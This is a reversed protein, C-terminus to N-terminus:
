LEDVFLPSFRRYISYGVAFVVCCVVVLISFPRADPLRGEVLIARYAELLQAMPNLELVFRYSQPVAKAEYFVPTMYWGLLTTIKVFQHVDRVYVNGACLAFGLGLTLMFQVFLVLPLALATIPIGDGLLLFVCLVPFAALYDLGDALVSVIPVATRPLGPRFLLDRRDVASTCASTVGASFWQWAILGTFVFIAYNEIGLPVVRTFVYTLIVLRALPAGIAWLWGLVARRYRLRFERGVLHTVLDWSYRRRTPRAGPARSGAPSDPPALRSGEATKEPSTKLLRPFGILVCAFAAGPAPTHSFRTGFSGGAHGRGGNCDCSYLPTTRDLGGAARCVDACVRCLDQALILPGGLLPAASPLPM